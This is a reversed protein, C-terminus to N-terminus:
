SAGTAKAIAAAATTERKEIAKDVMSQLAGKKALGKLLTIVFPTYNHRRRVNEAAQAARVQREAEVDRTLEAIRSDDGGAVVLADLEEQLRVIKSRCVSLLCSTIDDYRAMRAEIAPKATNWWDDGADGILIPGPKLGDLEYVKGDHPIYAVFHYVDERKGTMKNRDAPDMVFPDPKAFSNHANRILDHGGIAIGLTEADMGASSFAKFDSLAEGLEGKVALKDSNMLIALIAQTACANKVVQKAFFLTEPCEVITREEPDPRWKFLYILGHTAEKLDEAVMDLSWIEEVGTNQVGFREILENFVGPDSEIDTWEDM